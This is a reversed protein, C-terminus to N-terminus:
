AISSEAKPPQAQRCIPCPLQGPTKRMQHFWWEQICESHFTHRCHMTRCLEGAVVPLLCVVCHAGDCRDDALQEPPCQTNMIALMGKSGRRKSIPVIRRRVVVIVWACLSAAQFCSIGLLCWLMTDGTLFALATGVAAMVGFSNALVLATKVDFSTAM